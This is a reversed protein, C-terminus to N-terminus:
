FFVEWNGLLPFLILLMIKSVGVYKLALIKFVLLSFFNLVGAKVNFKNKTENPAKYWISYRLKSLDVNNCIINKVCDLGCNRSKNFREVPSHKARTIFHRRKSVIESCYELVLLKSWPRGTIVNGTPKRWKWNGLQYM